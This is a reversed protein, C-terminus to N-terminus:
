CDEDYLGDCDNDALDCVDTAGLYIVSNADNCDENNSVYYGPVFEGPCFRETDDGGFGDGDADYYYLDGAGVSADKDDCDVANNYGDGDSDRLSMDSSTRIYVNDMSGGVAQGSMDEESLSLSTTGTNMMLVFLAVIAVCAVMGLLYISAYDKSSKKVSKKILKRKKAM